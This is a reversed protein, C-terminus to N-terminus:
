LRQLGIMGDEVILEDLRGVAFLARERVDEVGVGHEEDYIGVVPFGANRLTDMAYLSDEFGWTEGRQTGLLSRAHDFIVPERKSAGVLDVSIVEEFYSRIGACALGAELYAVASSSTVAMRVGARACSSLFEEVGPLARARNAYYDFVYDDILAVVDAECSGLGYVRHAYEAVEPIAFTTFLAREEASVEVRAERAIVGEVGRWADLSDLLTGDCDFLAGAFPYSRSM